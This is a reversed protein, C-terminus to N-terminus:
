GHFIDFYTNYEKYIIPRCFLINSKIEIFDTLKNKFLFVETNFNKIIKSRSEIINNLKDFCNIQVKFDSKSPNNLIVKFINSDNFTVQPSYTQNFLSRSVISKIESNLTLYCANYNGHMFNWVNNGKKYGVYGREAIFCGQELLNNLSKFNHFVFFSGYGIIGLKSFIIEKTQYPELNYSIKKILEGSNNFIIIKVEDEQPVDPIIHSAVNTLMFKTELNNNCNWYFFDSVSAKKYGPYYTDVPRINLLNRLYLSYKNRFLLKRTSTIM